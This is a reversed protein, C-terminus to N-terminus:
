VSGGENKPVGRTDRRGEGVVKGMAPVEPLSEVLVVLGRASALLPRAGWCCRGGSGLGVAGPGGQPSASCGPCRGAGEPRVVEVGHYCEPPRLPRLLPIFGMRPRASGAALGAARVTRHPGTGAAWGWAARYAGAGGAAGGGARNPEAPSPM